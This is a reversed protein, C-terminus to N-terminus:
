HADCHLSSPTAVHPLDMPHELRKQQKIEKWSQPKRTLKFLNLSVDHEVCRVEVPVPAAELKACGDSDCALQCEYEKAVILTDEATNDAVLIEQVSEIM